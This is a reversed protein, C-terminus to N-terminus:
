ASGGFCERGSRNFGATDEVGFSSRRLRRCDAQFSEFLYRFAEYLCTNYDGVRYGPRGSSARVPQARPEPMVSSIIEDAQAINLWGSRRHVDNAFAVVCVEDDPRLSGLLAIAEQKVTPLVAEM